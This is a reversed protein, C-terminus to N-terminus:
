ACGRSARNPEVAAQDLKRNVEDLVGSTIVAEVDGRKLLANIHSRRSFAAALVVNTDLFVRM